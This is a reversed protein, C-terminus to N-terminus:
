IIVYIAYFYSVGMTAFFLIVPSLAGILWPNGPEKWVEERHRLLDRALTAAFIVSLAALVAAIAYRLIGNM